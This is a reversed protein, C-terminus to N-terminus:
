TQERDARQPHRRPVSASPVPAPRAAVRPHSAGKEREKQVLCLVISIVPGQAKNLVMVVRLLPHRPEHLSSSRLSIRYTTHIASNRSDDFRQVCDATSGEPSVVDTQAVAYREVVFWTQHTTPDPPGM